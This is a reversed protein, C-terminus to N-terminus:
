SKDNILQKYFTIKSQLTYKYISNMSEQVDIYFDLTDELDYGALDILQDFIDILFYIERISQCNDFLEFFAKKYKSSM